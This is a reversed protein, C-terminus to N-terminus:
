AAASRVRVGSIALSHKVESISLEGSHFISAALLADAGTNAAEVFHITEGAGGSAIFPVRSISSVEKILELDFGSKTGDADISNILLEGVGLDQTKKIWWIADIGTEKSGGHSTIVFGSDSSASRKIDLSAVLVQSGFHEAIDSLLEPRMIGASGVSIKDAGAELLRGVDAVSRIGGGVTLPIFVNEATRVVLDLITSRDEKSANVDLFTIEDAGQRFYKEALEVPDGVDALNEFNVGKVVRGDAVDLCPIIRLTLSM